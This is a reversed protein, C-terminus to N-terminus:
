TTRSWRSVWAPEAAPVHARALHQDHQRAASGALVVVAGIGGISFRYSLKWGVAWTLWSYGRHYPLGLNDPPQVFDARLGTGLGFLLPTALGIAHGCNNKQTDSCRVGTWRLEPAPNWGVNAPNLVIAEEGDESAANRGPTPM